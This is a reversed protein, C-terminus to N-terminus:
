HRFYRLPPHPPCLWARGLAALCYSLRCFACVSACSIRGSFSFFKKVTHSVWCQFLNGVSITSVGDSSISLFQRSVIRHRHELIVRSLCVHHVRHDVTTGELRVMRHNQTSATPVLARVLLPLQFHSSPLEWMPKPAQHHLSTIATFSTPCLSPSERQCAPHLEGWSCSTASQSNGPM